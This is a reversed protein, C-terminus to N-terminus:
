SCAGTAKDELRTTFERTVTTPFGPIFTIISSDAEVTITVADGVQVSDLSLDSPSYSASTATPAQGQVFPLFEANWCDGVVVRRAAERAGSSASNAVFFYWGLQITGLLLAALVPLILAFEVAAAGHERRHGHGSRNV